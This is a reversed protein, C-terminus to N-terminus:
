ARRGTGRGMGREGKRGAGVKQLQQAARRKRPANGFASGASAPRRPLFAVAVQRHPPRDGRSSRRGRRGQGRRKLRRTGTRRHNSALTETLSATRFRPTGRRSGRAQARAGGPRSPRPAPQLEPPCTGATGTLQTGWVDAPPITKGGLFAGNPQARGIRTLSQILVTPNGIPSKLPGNHTISFNSDM